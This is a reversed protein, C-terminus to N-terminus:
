VLLDPRLLMVPCPAGAPLEPAHPPRIILCDAQAFVKMLSSDQKAFPEALWNGAASKSLKARIYDQRHDNARLSVAAEVTAERRVPPLSALKRILPELFLQSCVLSSVPNGPLGLVHTQGFSGVMLPKGPRMAIRWFDLQMGAEILTAQVLDHDGVSAGGLTVIVDAEAGRAKDIAATIRAKNDPVIGLDLVDAGAKRALAAIGFTNSAIIQSPGPTSGPPLLEDGTALIAILPRKLIEVDPRNMAAAVTLRPFDLVTGASLVAEGEVFDQGRPRVHQGPRVPFSTRIGGEIQEADEQLLVSDAGSPVPAGTFIRVAEGHGVNGAFGHGAASTGIVKLVAGPEPADDRRLAYGDMASANFPPQTLSATLDTALVRGEAEALPLTESATVPKARSLLRNQAEAVPLLNM